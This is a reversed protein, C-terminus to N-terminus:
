SRVGVEKFYKGAVRALDELEEESFTAEERFARDLTVGPRFGQVFFREAGKLWKGIREMDGKGFLRPAVTTRFEYEVGSNMIIDVSRQIDEGSVRARAVEGYRDLPAKIDMSIYDVLGEKLLQEVMGPNSGNTDLKVLFGENKVRRIFDPLDRHMCPEGGTICLGDLWKRRDRLFGMVEEESIDPLDGPRKILDPNHCYPCRFNCGALFVIACTKGPYDIASLRELGKIPVPMCKM